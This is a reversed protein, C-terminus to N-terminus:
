IIADCYHVKREVGHGPHSSGQVGPEKGMKKVKPSHTLAVGGAGMPSGPTVSIPSLLAM